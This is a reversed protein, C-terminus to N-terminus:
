LTDDPRSADFHDLARSLQRRTRELGSDHWAARLAKALRRGPSALGAHRQGLGQAHRLATQLASRQRGIDAIIQGAIAADVTDRIPQGALLGDCDHEERAGQGGSKRRSADGRSLDNNM